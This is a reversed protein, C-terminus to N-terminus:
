EEDYKSAITIHEDPYLPVTEKALDMGESVSPAEVVVTRMSVRPEKPKHLWIEILVRM